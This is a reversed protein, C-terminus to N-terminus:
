APQGEVADDRVRWVHGCELLLLDEAIAPGITLLHCPPDNSAQRIHKPRASPQIADAQRSVPLVLRERHPDPAPESPPLILEVHHEDVQVLWRDRGAVVGPPRVLRVTPERLQLSTM